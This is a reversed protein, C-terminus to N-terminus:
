LTKEKDNKKREKFRCQERMSLQSQFKWRVNDNDCFDIFMM